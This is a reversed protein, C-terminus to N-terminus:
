EWVREIKSDKGLTIKYVDPNKLSKWEEFGYQRDFHNLMLIMLNGHTVIITSKVRGLKIAEIIPLFRQMAEFSSEGGPLKFHLDKFSQELPEMFNDLTQGSLIREKLDEHVYIDLNKSEATPLISHVARTYPSTIIQEVAINEFFDALQQSQDKGKNTLECNPAQGTAQCHRVLYIVKEM